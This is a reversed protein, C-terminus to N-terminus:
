IRDVLVMVDLAKMPKHLIIRNDQIEYDLPQEQGEADIYFLNGQVQYGITPTLMDDSLLSFLTIVNYSDFHNLNVCLRENCGCVPLAKRAIWGFVNILQFKRRNNIQNFQTYLNSDLPIICFRESQPNEYVTVCNCLKREHHDTIHSLAEAGPLYQIHKVIQHDFLSSYFYHSNHANKYKGNLPHMTFREGSYYPGMEGISEIGIRQGFGRYVLNEAARVDIVAGKKLLVDIEENSLAAIDDGVLLNWPTDKVYGVPMGDVGLYRYWNAEFMITGDKARRHMLATPTALINIGETRHGEPILSTVKNYFACNDRFSETIEQFNDYETGAWDFLNLQMNRLGNSLCWLIQMKTIRNSKYFFGYTDNELEPQIEVRDDDILNREIAPMSFFLPMDKHDGERYFNMGARIATVGKDYHTAYFEKLNRDLTVDPYSVTMLGLKTEPSISRVKETIMSVLYDLDAYAQDFYAKKIPSLEFSDSLIAEKIEERTLPRGVRESILQIHHDCLCVIQGLSVSRIDDDLFLYDPKLQAYYEYEQMLYAPLNEDRMCVCGRSKEGDITVARRIGFEEEDAYYCHGVTLLSNIGVQVGMERLREMYPTLTQAHKKYYELPVISSTEVFDVTFFIVRHIGSQTLFTVLKQFRAETDELGLHYRVVMNAQDYQLM